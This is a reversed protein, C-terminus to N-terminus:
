EWDYVQYIQLRSALGRAQDLDEAVGIAVAERENDCINWKLVDGGRM